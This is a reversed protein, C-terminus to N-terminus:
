WLDESFLRHPNETGTVQGAQKAIDLATSRDVFRGRSTVFGQEWPEVPLFKVTSLCRMLHGHRAPRPLTLISGQVLLAATTIREEPVHRTNWLRVAQDVGESHLGLVFWKTTTECSTCFVTTDIDDAYCPENLVVAGGCFPCPKLENM